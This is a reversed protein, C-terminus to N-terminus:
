QKLKLGASTKAFKSFRKKSDQSDTDANDTTDAGKRREKAGSRIGIFSNRDHRQLGPSIDEEWADVTTDKDFAALNRESMMREQQIANKGTFSKTTVNLHSYPESREVSDDEEDDDSDTM